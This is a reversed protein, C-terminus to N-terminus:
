DLFGLTEGIEIKKMCKMAVGLCLLGGLGSFEAVLSKGPLLM